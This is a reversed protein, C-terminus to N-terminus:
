IFGIFSGGMPTSSKTIPKDPPVTVSVVVPLLVKIPLSTTTSSTTTSSSTSTVVLTTSTTSSLPINSETVIESVLSQDSNQLNNTSIFFSIILGFVAVASIIYRKYTNDNGSTVLPLDDIEILDSEISTPEIDRNIKPYSPKINRKSYLNKHLSKEM